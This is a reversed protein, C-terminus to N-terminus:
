KGAPQIHISDTSIMSAPRALDAADQQNAPLSPSDARLDSAPLTSNLLRNWRDLLDGGEARLLRSKEQYDSLQALLQRAAAVDDPTWRLRRSQYLVPVDLDIRALHGGPAEATLIHQVRLNTEEFGSTAPPRPLPRSLAAPAPTAPPPRHDGPLQDAGPLWNAAAAAPPTAAAPKPKPKAPTTTIPAPASQIVPKTIYLLCFLAAVATSLLLLWPYARSQRCHHNRHPAYAGATTSFATPLAPILDVSTQGDAKPTAPLPKM